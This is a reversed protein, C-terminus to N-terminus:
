GAPEPAARRRTPTPSPSPDAPPPSPRPRRTARRRQRHHQLQRQEPLGRHGHDPLQPHRPEPRLQAWANFHNATTITGGTRKQQRVSWYQYFTATGVISPQNVRQTRYIDYTSGDTTVSGLRPPARARTTPASTRSSTTSSSRTPPGDTCRWTATATAPQLTGSYNVTRSSGPNWGKGVSRTTPATGSSATAPRRRGPDHHRQRQGELVLLLLRQPHRHLELHRDPRGRRPRHRGPGGLGRGAVVACAGGLLLRVRGRGRRKPHVLSDNMRADKEQLRGFAQGGSVMEVTDHTALRSAARSLTPRCDNLNMSPRLIPRRGAPSVVTGSLCRRFTERGCGWRLATQVPTNRGGSGDRSHLGPGVTGAPRVSIKQRGGAWTRRTAESRAERPRAARGDTGWLISRCVHFEQIM